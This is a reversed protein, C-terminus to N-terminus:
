VKSYKILGISSYSSFHKPLLPVKLPSKSKDQADFHALFSDLKAANYVFCWKPVKVGCALTEKKMQLKTSQYFPMNVGTIPLNLKNELLDVVEIGCSPEDWAGECFNIFCDIEKNDFRRALKVLM